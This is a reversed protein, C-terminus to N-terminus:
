GLLTILEQYTNVTSRAFFKCLLSLDGTHDAHALAGLYLKRDDPEIIMPPYARRLMFLATLLRVTLGNHEAFPGIRVFNYHFITIFPLNPM